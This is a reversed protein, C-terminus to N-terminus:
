SRDGVLNSPSPELLRCISNSGWTEWGHEVTVFTDPSNEVLRWYGKGDIETVMVVHMDNPFVLDGPRPEASEPLMKGNARCYSLLNRVRRVFFPTDPTNGSSERSYYNRHVSYDQRLLSDLDVGAKAYAIRPVDICVLMGLRGGLNNYKGKSQDYLIGKLSRAAAVVTEAPKEAKPYIRPREVSGHYLRFLYVYVALAACLCLGANFWFWLRSLVHLIVKM